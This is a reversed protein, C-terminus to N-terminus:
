YSATGVFYKESSYIRARVLGFNAHRTNHNECGSDTSRSCSVPNADFSRIGPKLRSWVAKRVRARREVSLSFYRAPVPPREPSFTIVAMVLVFLVERLFVLRRACWVICTPERLLNSLLRCSGGGGRSGGFIQGCVAIRGSSCAVM